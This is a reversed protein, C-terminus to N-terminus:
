DCRLLLAADSLFREMIGDLGGTAFCRLHHDLVSQTTAM